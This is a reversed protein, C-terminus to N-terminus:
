YNYWKDAISDEYCKVEFDEVYQLHRLKWRIHEADAIYEMSPEWGLRSDREVLPIAAEANAREEAIIRRIDAIAEAVEERTTSEAKARALFWEKAHIGTVVCCSMYEGLNILYALEDDGDTITKLLAVGDDIYQKMKRLSKIEGNVRLSHWMGRGSPLTYTASYDAPYMVELISNGFHAHESCPPKAARILCLPYSPGVRFAGYQDADTPTYCRIAESWLKLAECVTDVATTRFRARVIEHLEADMDTNEAIFCRKTLDSVHSPFLGFHHSEMVGCLGYKENAERLAKYRRMWQYPVPEYPITGLDWTLGGTNAMTYLRIGRKKAEEAESTFYSGPGEFAITYDAVTQVFGDMKYSEFMEFTVLLSVDTPLSRILSLRAERDVNGWNYTWFVIDADPKRSRVTDKVCNLWVPYDECPFYGPRPKTYPIGDPARSVNIPAVRPDRSPFGVSEGVLVVGKFGPCVDFLKGYLGDYFEKGGPEEPHKTSRMYSYAYVDIGYRAARAILENFDLFGYPTENIGKVFVLIADMGAHAIASLHENPFQDLGYGSHVMRPSFLFTHRVVERKLIPARKTNMRDELCYIAQAVGRENRGVVRVTDSVTIIYDESQTEDLEFVIAPANGVVDAAVIMVSTKMAVFLYEQLDQAAVLAVEGSNKPLVLQWGNTITIEDAAATVAMDRQDARHVCRMRNRFEYNQETKLM